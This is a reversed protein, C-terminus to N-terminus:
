AVKSNCMRPTKTSQACLQNSAGSLAAGPETAVTASHVPLRACAIVACDYGAFQPSLPKSPRIWSSMSVTLRCDVAMSSIESGSGKAASTGFRTALGNSVDILGAPRALM